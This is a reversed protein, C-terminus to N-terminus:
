FDDNYNLEIYLNYKKLLNLLEDLRNNNFGIMKDLLNYNSDFFYLTPLKDTNSIINYINTNYKEIINDKIEDINDINIDIYNINYNTLHESLINCNNCWDAGIKFLLNM